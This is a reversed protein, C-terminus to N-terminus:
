GTRSGPAAGAALAEAAGLLARAYDFAQSKVWEGRVKISWFLIAVVDLLGVVELPEIRNPHHARVVVFAAAAVAGCAGLLIGLPRLGLMNRRFGYGMNEAAVLPFALRGRTTERLRQIYIEADADDPPSGGTPGVLEPMLRRMVTWRRAVVAPLEGSLGKLLLTTPAGGWSAWLSPELRRGRDRVLHAVLYTVGSSPAFSIVGAVAGRGVGTIVAVTLSAPVICLLAPAVRARLQYRDLFDTM